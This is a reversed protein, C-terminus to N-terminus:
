IALKILRNYPFSFVNHFHPSSTLSFFSFNFAFLQPLENYFTPIIHQHQLGKAMQLM